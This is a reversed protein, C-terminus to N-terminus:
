RFLIRDITGVSVPDGSKVFTRVGTYSIGTHDISEIRGLRDVGTVTITLDNTPSEGGLESGKIIIQDGIKYGRGAARISVTYANLITQSIVFSASYGTNNPTHKVRFYNYKGLINIYFSDSSEVIEKISIDSWTEPTASEDLSGQITIEGTYNNPFFQFTYNSSGTRLYPDVSILSSEFFEPEVDGVAAPSIKNFKNIELSPLIQGEIDSVVEITGSTGYQSDVYLPLKSNVTYNDADIYTRTEKVLTYDYFGREVDFLETQTITLQYRGISADITVCDKQLVLSNTDRNILNFVLYSGTLNFQKQDSNRVQFDLKNDVDRYVKLNRNYVRRYREATWSDTTTTFVDLNNQYLYVYSIEM